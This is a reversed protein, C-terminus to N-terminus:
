TMVYNSKGRISRGIDDAREISYELDTGIDSKLAEKLRNEVEKTFNRGVIKIKVRDANVTNVQFALIQNHFKKLVNNFEFQHVKRGKTKFIASQRGVVNIRKRTLGCSCPENVVSGVDGLRYRIFPMVENVLSTVAIEGMGAPLDTRPLIELIVAEENIHFGSHERCEFGLIGTETAAYYNNVECKFIKELLNRSNESLQEAFSIVADFELRMSFKESQLALEHLGSAYGLLVGRGSRNLQTIVDRPKKLLNFISVTLDPPPHFSFDPDALLIKPTNWPIGWLRFMRELLVRKFPGYKKDLYFFLPEGTSGSTSHTSLRKSSAAKSVLSKIDFNKLDAKSVPPLANLDDPSKIADVLIRHMDFWRRYFPVYQYAHHVLNKLKDSQFKYIKKQDWWLSNELFLNYAEETAKSAFASVRKSGSLGSALDQLKLILDDGHLM